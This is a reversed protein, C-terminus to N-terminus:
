VDEFYTTKVYRIKDYSKLDDWVKRENATLKPDYKVKKVHENPKVDSPFVIELQSKLADIVDDNKLNPHTVIQHYLVKHEKKLFIRKNEFVPQLSRIRANKSIRTNTTVEKLAFWFDQKEMEENLALALFKEMAFKEMAVCMMPTYKRVLRFIEEILGSPEIRMQIAERIYWNSHYDVGNVIIGTYDSNANLSIAPDLTIFHILGEPCDDEEYYQIHEERFTCMDGSVARNLYQCNKSAYGWAVYNGTSTKLAYVKERKYPEIKVIKDRSYIPARDGGVVRGATNWLTDIIQQKKAPNGHQIIRVKTDRGGNLVWMTLGQKKPYCHKKFPLKLRQIIEEIRGCVEPNHDKSQSITISGYKCSGEGDIMGALYQYDLLDQDTPKYRTDVVRKPNSNIVLKAYHSREPDSHRGNYWKHDPTCRIIEGESSYYKCTLAVRSNIEEVKSKVLRSRKGIGDKITFGIVEDGVKVDKILKTTWDSMLIPADGPNCNYIYEGQTKRMQNLFDRSLIDPMLLEGSDDEAERIFVDTTDAETGEPDLLWSYLEYFGWRTGIVLIEGGPELISLLLKYYEITKEVQEPSNINNRSVVDDLIIMDFHLGVITGKELSSAMVTPEKKVVTRNNVIFEGEKWTNNKNELKGYLLKFRPNEELQTKIEKAFRIANRQTESAILIRLNPNETIKKLTRGVTIATSKYSGRPMLILKTRKVSNDVFNLLQGHPSERMKDYGLVKKCFYLTDRDAKSKIEQLQEQESKAM